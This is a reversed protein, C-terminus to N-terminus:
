FEISSRDQLPQTGWLRGSATQFIQLLRSEPIMIRISASPAIAIKAPIIATITMIASRVIISM